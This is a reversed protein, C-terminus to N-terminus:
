LATASTQLLAQQSAAVPMPRFGGRTGVQQGSHIFLPM